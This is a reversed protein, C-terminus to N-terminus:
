FCSRQQYEGRGAKGMWKNGEVIIDGRAIVTEANGTITLGEYMSYDVRMHHTSASITHERKPNWVVIDADSGAQLTGKKPYLGFLKAPNTSILDVWRNVSFRGQRVGFHYLLQLRNEIGPGGNPIETFDKEGARKQTGFNFPCHDTSVVQLDDNNLAQWLSEQDKKERLPPTLVFKAGEFGPRGLDDKTLLLYQPCTEGFVDVGKRRARSIEALSDGCSVHVIYVPVDAIRALAIVRNTAEAEALAPRTLAHYIPDTKGEELAQQVLLQIANGNEAHVAVLAGSKRARQMIRLITADDVMLSGPYATFVKFSTVGKEVIRDIEDLREEPMDVIIMHLGYDVVARKGKERWLDFASELSQGRSQTAFDIICTTGGFAAAKTGTEFDDSSTTGGVPADLHTHVDIGGPIVYKGSADIVKSSESRLDKGVQRITEREVVIDLIETRDALVVEGNKILISM